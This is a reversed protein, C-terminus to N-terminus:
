DADAEKMVYPLKRSFESAEKIRHSEFMKKHWFALSDKAVAAKDADSVAKAKLDDLMSRWSERQDPISDFPVQILM